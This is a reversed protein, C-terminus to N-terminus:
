KFRALLTLSRKRAVIALQSDSWLRCHLSNDHGGCSVTVNGRDAREAGCTLWGRRFVIAQDGLGLAYRRRPRNDNMWAVLRRQTARDLGRLGTDDHRDQDP